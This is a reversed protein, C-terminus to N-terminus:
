GFAQIFAAVLAIIKKNGENNKIPLLTEADCIEVYDVKDFGNQLLNQAANQKLQMIDANLFNQKIFQLSQHICAAKNKADDSLRMNRSSMALGNEERSIDVLNININSFFEQMMKKIVM